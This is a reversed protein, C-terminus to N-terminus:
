NGTVAAEETERTRIFASGHKECLWLWNNPVVVEFRGKAFNECDEIFCREANEEEYRKIAGTWKSKGMEELLSEESFGSIKAIINNDEDLIRAEYTYEMICPRQTRSQPSRTLLGLVSLRLTM